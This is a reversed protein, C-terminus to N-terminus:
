LMLPPNKNTEAFFTIAKAARQKKTKIKIAMTKPGESYVPLVISTVDVVEDVSVVVLIVFTLVVVEVRIAVVSCGELV